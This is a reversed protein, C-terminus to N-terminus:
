ACGGNNDHVFLGINNICNQTKGLKVLMFTATLARGTALASAPHDVHKLSHFKSIGVKRFNVHKFLKRVLNFPM